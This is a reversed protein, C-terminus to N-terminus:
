VNNKRYKITFLTILMIISFLCINIYVFINDLTMPSEESAGKVKKEVGTARYSQINLKLTYYAGDTRGVETDNAADVWKWEITYNDKENSKLIKDEINVNSIKVYTNSNGVIYKGNRKIKYRMNVNYINTEDLSLKYKYIGKTNNNVVFDYSGKDGPSVYDVDFIKLEVDQNWGDEYDTITLDGNEDVVFNSDSTTNSNSTVNSNNNSDIIQNSSINSVKNSTKNSNITSKSNSTKNSKNNSTINSNDNSTINSNSAINSTVNSNSIVNSTINSNVNSTNSVKNSNTENSGKVGKNCNSGTCEINIVNKDEKKHSNTFYIYTFVGLVIASLIVGIFIKNKM